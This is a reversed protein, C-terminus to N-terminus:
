MTILCVQVILVNKTTLFHLSVELKGYPALSVKKVPERKTQASYPAFQSVARRYQPRYETTSIGAASVGSKERDSTGQKSNGSQDSPPPMSIARRFAPPSFKGANEDTRVDGNESVTEGGDSEEAILTYPPIVFEPPEKPTICTGLKRSPKSSNLRKLYRRLYVIGVISLLLLFILIGLGVSAAISKSSEM